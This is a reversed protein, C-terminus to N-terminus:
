EPTSLPNPAKYSCSLAESKSLAGHKNNSKLINSHIASIEKMFSDAHKGSANPHHRHKGVLSGM